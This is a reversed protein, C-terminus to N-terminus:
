IGTKKKIWPIVLAAPAQESVTIKASGLSGQPILLKPGSATSWRYGNVTTSDRELSCIVEIPADFTQKQFFTVLGNNSLDNELEKTTMPFNNIEIVKGLMYGYEQEVVFFPSFRVLQGIQIKGALFPSVYLKLFTNNTDFLDSLSLKAIPSQVNVASGVKIDVSIIVGNEPSLIDSNASSEQQISDIKAVLKSIELDLKKKYKEYGLLQNSKTTAIESIQQKINDIDAKAASAEEEEKNILATSFAGSDKKSLMKQYLANKNKYIHTKEQLERNLQKKKKNLNTIQSDLIPKALDLLGSNNKKLLALNRNHEDLQIKLDTQSITAIVQNKKVKDGNQVAISVIKGSGPPTIDMKGSKDIIIGQAYVTDPIKGVFGWVIVTIIFAISALLAIWTSSSSIVLVKDLEEPSSLNDLAKKSFLRKEAM